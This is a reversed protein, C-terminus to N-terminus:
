RRPELRARYRPLYELGAIARSGYWSTMEGDILAVRKGALAPLAAALATVAGWGGHEWLQGAAASSAAGALFFSAMYVTNVRARAEPRLGYIVRQGIM